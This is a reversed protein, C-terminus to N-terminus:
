RLANVAELLAPDLMGAEILVKHLEAGKARWAEMDPEVLQVGHENVARAIDEENLKASLRVYEDGAEQAAQALAARHEESLRDWTVKSVIPLVVQYYEGLDTFYKLIETHKSIYSAALPGTLGDVAGTVLATYIEGWAVVQVNAGLESWARIPMEAQFMRLKYGQLDDPTAVPTRTVLGRNQQRM